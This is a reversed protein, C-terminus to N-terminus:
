HSLCDTLQASCGASQASKTVCKLCVTSPDSTSSCSGAGGDMPVGGDAALLCFSYACGFLAQFRGAAAPTVESVCAAICAANTGCGAVCSAAQSCSFMSLDTPTVSLDANSALDPAPANDDGCAVLGLAALTLGLLHTRM